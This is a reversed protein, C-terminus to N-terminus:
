DFYNEYKSKRKIDLTTCHHAGSFIECHRFPSGIAEINYKKLVKNLIQEYQPHCIILETSVSFVNLEIRPSALKIGQNAKEQKDRNKMPIYILDWKQLETPLKEKIYDKM